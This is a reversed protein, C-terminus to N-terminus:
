RADPPRERRGTKSVRPAGSTTRPPPSQDPRLFPPQAPSPIAITSTIAAPTITSTPPLRRGPNATTLGWRGCWGACVNLDRPEAQVNEASLALKRSFQDYIELGNLGVYFPDGWSGLVCIKVVFGCPHVPTEYQPPPRGHAPLRDSTAYHSALRRRRPFLM